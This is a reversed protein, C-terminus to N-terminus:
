ERAKLRRRMEAELDADSLSSLLGKTLVLTAATLRAQAGRGAKGDMVLVVTQRARELEDEAANPLPLAERPARKVTGAVGIARALPGPKM